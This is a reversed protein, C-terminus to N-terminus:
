EKREATESLSSDLESLRGWIKALVVVSVYIVMSQEPRTGWNGGQQTSTCVLCLPILFITHPFYFFYFIHRRMRM